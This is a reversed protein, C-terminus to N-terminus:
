EETGSKRVAQYAKVLQRIQGAQRGAEEASCQRCRQEEMDQRGTRGQGAERSLLRVARGQM